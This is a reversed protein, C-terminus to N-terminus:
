YRLTDVQMECGVSERRVPTPLLIRRANRLAFLRLGLLKGSRPVRRRNRLGGGGTRRKKNEEGVGARAM